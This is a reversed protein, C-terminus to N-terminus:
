VWVVRLGTLLGRIPWSSVLPFDTSSHGPSHSGKPTHPLLRAKLSSGGRKGRAGKGLLTSRRGQGKCRHGGMNGVEGLQWLPLGPTGRWPPPLPLSQTSSLASQIQASPAAAHLGGPTHAAARTTSLLLLSLLLAASATQTFRSEHTPDTSGLRAASIFSPLRCERRLSSSM